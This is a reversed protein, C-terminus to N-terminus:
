QQTPLTEQNTTYIAGKPERIFKGGNAEDYYITGDSDRYVNRPPVNAALISNDPMSIAGTIPLDRDSYSYSFLVKQNSDVPGGDFMFHIHKDDQIISSAPIGKYSDPLHDPDDSILLLNVLKTPAPVPAVEKRPSPPIVEIPPSSPLVKQTEDVLQKKLVVVVQPKAVAARAIELNIIQDNSEIQARVDNIQKQVEGAEDAKKPGCASLLIALFTVLLIKITM